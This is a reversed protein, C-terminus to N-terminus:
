SANGGPLIPQGLLDRAESGGDIVHVRRGSVRWGDTTRRFEWNNVSVRWLEYGADSHLYVRGYNTASARDGQISVLPFSHVHACGRAVLQGQGDGDIMAGIAAAGELQGTETELVADDTWIAAAAQGNGTDAAPGWTSVLRCVALQDELAQLRNELTAIRDEQVANDM